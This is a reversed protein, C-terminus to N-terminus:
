HKFRKELIPKVYKVLFIFAAYKRKYILNVMIKKYKNLRSFDLEPYFEVFDTSLVYEELRKALKFIPMDVTKVRQMNWFIISLTRTHIQKDVMAYDPCRERIIESVGYLEDSVVLDPKRKVGGSKWQRYIYGDYDAVAVTKAFPLLQLNFLGDENRKIAADFRISNSKIIEAPYLAGWVSGFLIGSLTGDDIARYSLDDFTYVGTEIRPAKKVFREGYLLRWGCFVVGAETKVLEGYLSNLYDPLIKDDADIFAIYDGSAADIGFNRTYSVGHNENHFVKIRSDRAAYETCIKYSDDKSGDDVLILEWNEYEQAIVSEICEGLFRQANYIPIIISILKNEM